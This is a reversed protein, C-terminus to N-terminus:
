PNSEDIGLQQLTSGPTLYKINIISQILRHNGIHPPVPHKMHCDDMDHRSHWRCEEYYAKNSLLITTYHMHGHHGDLQSGQVRLDQRKLEKGPQLEDLCFCFWRTESLVNSM